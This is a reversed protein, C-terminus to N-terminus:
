VEGNETVLTAGCEGRSVLVNQAGSKLLSIACEEIRKEDSPSIEEGFIESLEYHNPKIIFPKHSLANKLTDGSTDVVCKAGKCSAMRMMKEYIDQPISGPISGSLVLFDGDRLIDLKDFLLELEETKVDPGPANVFLERDALIKVNIRTNGSKLKVFDTKVGEKHLMKVLEEGTFGAVFGLAKNEVGLRDLVVSVNIGKGGYVCEASQARCVDESLIDDTKLVYDIAPNLTVTYVMSYRMFIAVAWIANGCM